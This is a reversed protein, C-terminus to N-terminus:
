KYSKSPYAGRRITVAPIQKTNLKCLQRGQTPCMRSLTWWCRSRLTRGVKETWRCRKERFSDWLNSCTSLFTGQLM